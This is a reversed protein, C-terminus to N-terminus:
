RSLAEMMGGEVEGICWAMAAKWVTGGLTVKVANLLDEAKGMIWWFQEIRKLLVCYVAVLLLAQPIREEVMECFRKPILTTWSLTVIGPCIELNPRSTLAFVYRLTHLTENLALIDNYRLQSNCPPVTWSEAIADLHPDEPIPSFLSSKAVPGHIMLPVAVTRWPRIVEAFYGKDVWQFASWLVENGGRQLKYWPVREELTNGDISKSVFFLNAGKAGPKTWAHFGLLASCACCADSNEKSLNQLEPRFALLSKM